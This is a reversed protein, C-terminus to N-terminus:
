GIWKEYLQELKIEMSEKEQLLEQLRVYDSGTHELESEITKINAELESIDNEMKLKQKENQQSDLKPQKIQAKPKEKVVPKEIKVKVAKEKCEKYAEYGGIFTSIKGDELEWV